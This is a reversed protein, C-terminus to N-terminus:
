RGAPCASRPSLCGPGPGARAPRRRSPRRGCTLRAAAARVPPAPWGASARSTWAGSGRGTRANPSSGTRAPDPRVGTAPRSDEAAATNVDPVVTSGTSTSTPAGPRLVAGAPVQMTPPLPVVHAPVDATGGVGVTGRVATTHVPRRPALDAPTRDARRVLAHLAGAVAVVVLQDPLRARHRRDLGRLVPGGGLRERLQGRIQGVRTIGGLGAAHLRDAPGVLVAAQRPLRHLPVGHWRPLGPRPDLLYLWWSHKIRGAWSTALEGNPAAGDSSYLATLMTTRGPPGCRPRVRTYDATYTSDVTRAALLDELVAIYDLCAEGLLGETVASVQGDSSVTVIIRPNVAEGEVAFTLRVSSDAAVSESELRLGAAPARERLRELVARQVQLGYGADIAHVIDVARAEDVDGTFHAAWIGDETRTFRAQAGRWRAVIEEGGETVEAGTGRLAAALLSADRM